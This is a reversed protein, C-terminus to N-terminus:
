FTYVKGLRAPDELREATERAKQLYSLATEVNESRQYYVFLNIYIDLQHQHNKQKKATELAQFQLSLYHDYDGMKLYTIGLNNYLSSRNISIGKANAEKLVQTYVEKAKHLKGISYLYVGYLKKISLENKKNDLYKSLPLLISRVLELNQDYHGLRYISYDIYQYINLKLQSNPFFTKGKFVSSHTPMQNYHDFIYLLQFYTFTSLYLNNNDVNLE